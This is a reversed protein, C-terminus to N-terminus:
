PTQNPSSIAELVASFKLTLDLFLNYISPDDFLSHFFPSWSASTQDTGRMGLPGRRMM